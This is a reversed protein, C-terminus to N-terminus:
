KPSKIIRNDFSEQHINLKRFKVDLRQQEAQRNHACGPCVFMQKQEIWHLTENPVLCKLCLNNQPLNKQTETNMIM